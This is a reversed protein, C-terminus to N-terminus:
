EAPQTPTTPLAAKIAAVVAAKQVRQTIQEKLTEVQDEALAEIRAVEAAAHSTVIEIEHEISALETDHKALFADLRADLKVIFAVLADSNRAIFRTLISTLM